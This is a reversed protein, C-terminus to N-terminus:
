IEKVRRGFEELREDGFCTRSLRIQDKGFRVAKIEQLWNTSCKKQLSEMTQCSSIPPLRFVASVLPHNVANRGIGRM